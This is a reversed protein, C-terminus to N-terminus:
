MTTSGGTASGGMGSDGHPNSPPAPPERGELKAIEADVRWKAFKDPADKQARAFVERAKDKSGAKAYAVGLNFWGNWIDPKAQTIAELETVAFGVPDTQDVDKPQELYMAARDVRAYWYDEGNQGATAKELYKGYWNIAEAPQQLDYYTNGIMLLASIDQPYKQQYLKLVKVASAADGAMTAFSALKSVTERMEDSSKFKRKGIEAMAHEFDPRLKDQMGVMTYIEYLTQLAAMDLPDKALKAKAGTIQTKLQEMGGTASEGHPNETSGTAGAGGEAHPNTMGSMGSMDTTGPTSSKPKFQVFILVCAVIIVGIVILATWNVAKAAAPASSGADVKTEPPPAAAPVTLPEACEVCFQADEPNETGCQPCKVKM